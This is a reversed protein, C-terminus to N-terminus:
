CGRSSWVLSIDFGPCRNVLSWSRSEAVGRGVEAARSSQGVTDLSGVSDWSVLMLCGATDGRSSRRWSGEDFTWSRVDVVGGYWSVVYGMRASSSMCGGRVNVYVNTIGAIFEDSKNYRNVQRRHRGENDKAMCMRVRMRVSLNNASGVRKDAGCGVYIYIYIHTHTHTHSHPKYHNTINNTHNTNRIQNTQRWEKLLRFYCLNKM